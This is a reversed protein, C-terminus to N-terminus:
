AWCRWGYLARARLGPQAGPSADVARQLWKQGERFYGRTKWFPTLAAALRLGVDPRHTVSWELATRLNEHETELANTWFQQDDATVQHWAREVLGVAWAAHRARIAPAEGSDELRDDAYSRITELLRYRARPRTTDAVVFSKKVLAALLDVVDDRPVGKGGCVDEVAHLNAGGAFVSLRQM